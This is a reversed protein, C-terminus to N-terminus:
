LPSREDNMKAEFPEAKSQVLMINKRVEEELEKWISRYMELYDRQYQVEVVQRPRPLDVKYVRKVTGPRATMLYIRDSLVLAEALDHTVFLITKHSEDWLRLLEDQLIIKTQADVSSFPEDMLVIEPDDALTRILAARKRMGGSLEHPYDSEFGSLGAKKMWFAAKSAREKAQVNRIELPLEVNSIVTRWPLLNDQQMMYGIRHKSPNPQEGRIEIDGSDAEFLGAIMNLLTSKGCGSPGVLSVFEGEELNVNVHRLSEVVNGHSSFRKSVERVLLFPLRRNL